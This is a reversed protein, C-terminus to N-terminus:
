RTPHGAGEPLILAGQAHARADFAIAAAATAAAVVVIAGAAVLILRLTMTRVCLHETALRELRCM